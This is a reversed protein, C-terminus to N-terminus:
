EVPLPTAAPEDELRKPPSEIGEEGPDDTELRTPVYIRGENLGIEQL